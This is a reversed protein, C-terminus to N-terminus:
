KSKPLYRDFCDTFDEEFYCNHNIGQTNKQHTRVGFDKLMSALKNVTIKNGRSIEAWPREEINALYGCLMTSSIWQSKEKTFIQKIDQLLLTKLSATDEEQSRKTMKIALRRIDEDPKNYILDSIIFIGEWNDFARNFLNEVPEPFTKPIKEEFDNMLRQCKRRLLDFQESMQRLRLREVHETPALRRMNIIIGRDMITDPVKGISAIACPAFASFSHPELDKGVCRIIYGNRHHGANIVGRLEENNKVFTDAEDVLLTPDHSDILRFMSAATINSAPVPNKVLNHLVTLLTTKGCRKEPSVIVLRPTIDFYKFKYTHLIWYAIALEAGDQLKVFKTITNQLEKILSKGDVAEEYPLIEHFFENKGQINASSSSREIEKESKKEESSASINTESTSSVVDKLRSITWDAPFEDAVDWGKPFLEEPIEVIHVKCDLEKLRLSMKRMAKRGPEDNDPLLYISRGSLFKIRAKKVQGCGGLWTTVWYDPFLRKAAEATKEGEVILVPKDINGNYNELNYLPTEESFLNAALWIKEGTEKNQAYCRPKVEKSGDEKDFREIYLLPEGKKNKYTWYQSVGDRPTYEGSFCIQVYQSKDLM